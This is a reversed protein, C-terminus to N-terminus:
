VHHASDHLGAFQQRSLEWPEAGENARPDVLCKGSQRHDPLGILSRWHTEISFPGM